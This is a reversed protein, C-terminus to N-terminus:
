GRKPQRSPVAGRDPLAPLVGTEAVEVAIERLKRHLAQSAVRLLTFAEQQTIKYHAMLVGIAMGIQRNSDLALELNTSHETVEGVVLLGAAHAALISAAAVAADDFVDAKDAYFNMTASYRGPLRIVLASCLPTERRAGAIFRPWRQEVALDACLVSADAAAAHVCPGESLDFQLQDLQAAIPDSAGFSRGKGARLDSISAWTCGPVHAVALQGIRSWRGCENGDSRIEAALEAFETALAVMEETDV